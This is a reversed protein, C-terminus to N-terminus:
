LMKLWFWINTQKQVVTRNVSYIRESFHTLGNERGTSVLTGRSTALCGGSVLHQREVNRYFDRIRKLYTRKM